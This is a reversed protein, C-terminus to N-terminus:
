STFDEEASEFSDDDAESSDVPSDTQFDKFDKLSGKSSSKKHRKFKMLKKKKKLVTGELSPTWALEIELFEKKWQTNDYTGMTGGWERPLIKPSVHKHLSAYNTGHMKVRNRMKDNMFPKMITFAGDFVVPENVFHIGSIRVPICNQFISTVKKAASPTLQSAQYMSVGGVDFILVVGTIQTEEEEVLYDLVMFLAKCIDLMPYKAPDWHGARMAVVKRGEKDTDTLVYPYGDDLVHKIGQPHYDNFFEPLKLHLEYYKKLAKFARDVEFKKARLFRILFNEDRCFNIHPKEDMYKYLTNFALKRMLHNEGLEMEARKQMEPSLTCKYPVTAM